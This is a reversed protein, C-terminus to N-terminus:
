FLMLFESIGCYLQHKFPSLLRCTDEVKEEKVVVVKVGRRSKENKQYFDGIFPMECLFLQLTCFHPFFATLQYYKVTGDNTYNRKAM